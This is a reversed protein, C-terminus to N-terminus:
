PAQAPRSRSHFFGGAAAASLAVLGLILFLVVPTTRPEPNARPRAPHHVREARAIVPRDPRAEPSWDLPWSLPVSLGQPGRLEPPSGDGLTIWDRSWWWGQRGASLPTLGRRQESGDRQRWVLALTELPAPAGWEPADELLLLEGSHTLRPTGRARPECWSALWPAAGAGEIAEPPFGLTLVRGLGLAREAVLPAGSELQALVRAGAVPRVSLHTRVRLDAGAVRSPQDQWLQQQLAGRLCELLRREAAEAMLNGADLVREPGGALAALLPKGGASSGGASSGGASSGGSNTAIAVLPGAHRARWASARALASAGLRDEGDSIVLLARGALAGSDVLQEVCEVLATPGGPAEAPLTTLPPGLAAAFMRTELTSGPPLLRAVESWARTLRAWREGRMSGSADLLAVWSQASGSPWRVELASHEAPELGREPTAFQVWLGGRRLWDLVAALEEPAPGARSSVLVDLRALEERLSGNVWRLSSSLAAGGPHLARREGALAIPARWRQVPTGELEVLVEEAGAGLPGADLTIESTQGDAVPFERRVPTRGGLAVRLAGVGDGFSHVRAQLVVRQGSEAESPARVEALYLEPQTREPVELWELGVGSDALRELAPRPDRGTSGGDSYLRARVVGGPPLRRELLELALALDSASGDIEALARSAASGRYERAGNGYAIWGLEALERGQARAQEAFLRTLQAAFDPRARRMSDSVDVLLWEAPGALTAPTGGRSAMWAAAALAAVGVWACARAWAFSLRLGM